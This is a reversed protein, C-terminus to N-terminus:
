DSSSCIHYMALTICLEGDMNSTDDQSGSAEAVPEELDLNLVRGYVIQTQRQGRIETLVRKEATQFDTVSIFTPKQVRLRHRLKEVAQVLWLLTRDNKDPLIAYGAGLQSNVAIVNNMEIVPLISKNIIHKTEIILIDPNRQWLHQSWKPTWLMGEYQGNRELPCTWIDDRERLSVLLAQVGTANEKAKRKFAQVHNSVDEFKSLSEPYAKLLDEYITKASKKDITGAEILRKQEETLKRHQIHESPSSSPPHNHEPHTVTFYCGDERVNVNASFPCDTKKTNVRKLGITAKSKFAGSKDCRILYRTYQGTRKSKTKAHPVIAYGQKCAHAQLAKECDPWSPFVAEPHPELPM